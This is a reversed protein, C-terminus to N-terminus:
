IVLVSNIYSMLVLPGRIIFPKISQESFTILIEVSYTNSHSGAGTHCFDEKDSGHGQEM